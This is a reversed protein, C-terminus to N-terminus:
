TEVKAPFRGLPCPETAMRLKNRIAPQNTNSPCGCSNCIGRDRDFMACQNCHEDFIARIEEDTREPRGAGVWRRVATAYNIVKDYLSAVENKTDKACRGCIDEDVPLNTVGCRIGQHPDAHRFECSPYGSTNVVPLSVQGTKQKKSEFYVRLPCAACTDSDVPQKYTDAQKHICRHITEGGLKRITQRKRCEKM